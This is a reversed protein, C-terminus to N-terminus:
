VLIGLALKSSAWIGSVLARVLWPHEYLQLASYSVACARYLWRGWELVVRYRRRRIATFTSRLAAQLQKPEMHRAEPARALYLAIYYAMGEIADDSSVLVFAEHLDHHLAPQQEVLEFAASAADAEAGATSLAGTAASTPNSGGAAQTASASSSNSNATIATKAAAPRRSFFYGYRSSSSGAAPSSTAAPAQQQQQQSSLEDLHQEPAAAAPSTADTISHAPVRTLELGKAAAGPTKQHQEHESLDIWEASAQELKHLFDETAIYTELGELVQVDLTQGALGTIADNKGM